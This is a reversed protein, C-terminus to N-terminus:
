TRVRVRPKPESIEAQRRQVESRRRKRPVFQRATQYDGAEAFSIAVMLADFRRRFDKM